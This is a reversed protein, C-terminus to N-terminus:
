WLRPKAVALWAVVALAAPVAAQLWGPAAAAGRGEAARRLRGSLVGHLGALLLVLVLKPPLWSSRFWGGDLALWLGLALAALMAPTVIRAWARRLAAAHAADAGAALAAVLTMGGIWVGASALHLAKLLAQAATM